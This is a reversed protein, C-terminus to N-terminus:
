QEKVDKRELDSTKPTTGTTGAGSHDTKWEYIQVDGRDAGQSQTGADAGGRREWTTTIETEAESHYIPPISVEHKLRTKEEIKTKEWEGGQPDFSAKGLTPGIKVIFPVNVEANINDKKTSQTIAKARAALFANIGLKAFELVTYVQLNKLDAQAVSKQTADLFENWNIKNTTQTVFFNYLRM